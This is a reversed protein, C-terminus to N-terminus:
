PVGRIEQDFALGCSATAFTRARAPQSHLMPAIIEPLSGEGGQPGLPAKGERLRNFDAEVYFAHAYRKRVDRAMAGQSIRVLGRPAAPNIEEIPTPPGALIQELIEANSSGGYPARGTLMAYLVAGYSYIDGRTDESNGLACTPSLYPMSGEFVPSLVDVMEDNWLSLSLGFDSLYVHDNKDLLINQPKIDRHIIQCQHARALASAIPHAIRLVQSSELPQRAALLCQLSGGEMLPMVLYGKPKGAGSELLPMINPHALNEMHRMEKNFYAVAREDALLSPKLVKIAVLGRTMTDRAKYVLGMGGEGIVRLLEYRGITGLTGLRWPPGILSQSIRGRRGARFASIGLKSLNTSSDLKAGSM